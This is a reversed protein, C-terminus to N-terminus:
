LCVPYKFHLMATISIYQEDVEQAGDYTYRQAKWDYWKDRSSIAFNSSTASDTIRM